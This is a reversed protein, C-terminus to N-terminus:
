IHPACTSHGTMEGWITGCLGSTGNKYTPIQILFFTFTPKFV